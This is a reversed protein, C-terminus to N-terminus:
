GMRRAVYHVRGDAIVHVEDGEEPIVDALGTFDGFAPLVMAKAGIWFCALRERQRAAGRLIAAPHLHGGIVYGADVPRPYHALAFPGEIMPADVCRIGTDGPPDGAGRDHNGRVLVLELEVRSQRWRALLGLTDPDRGERAHLLDGLFVVRTAGSRTVAADLRDLGEKTTGRPVPISGARFTAAKGIHADAVLLTRRSPWYAAREPLLVIAEGAVKVVADGEAVSIESM